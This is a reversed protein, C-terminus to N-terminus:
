AADRLHTVFVPNTLAGGTRGLAPERAERVLDIAEETGMGALQLIRAAVLCSRNRGAQCLLVVPIDGDLFASAAHAVADLNEPIEEADTMKVRLWIPTFPELLGAFDFVAVDQEWIAEDDTPPYFSSAIYL